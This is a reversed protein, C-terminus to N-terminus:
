VRDVPSLPPIPNYNKPAKEQHENNNMFSLEKNIREQKNSMELSSPLKQSSLVVVSIFFAQLHNITSSFEVSYFGDKMPELIFLPTSQEAGEQFNHIINFLSYGDM